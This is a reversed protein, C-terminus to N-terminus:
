QNPFFSPLLSPLLLFSNLIKSQPHLWSSVPEPCLHHVRPLYVLDEYSLSSVRIGRLVWQILCGTCITYKRFGTTKNNNNNQTIKKQNISEQCLSYVTFRGTFFTCTPVMMQSIQNQDLINNGIKTKRM